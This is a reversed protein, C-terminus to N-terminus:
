ANARGHRNTIDWHGLGYGAWTQLLSPELFCHIEM